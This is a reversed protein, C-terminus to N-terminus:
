VFLWRQHCKMVSQWILIEFPSIGVPVQITKPNAQFYIEFVAFAQSLALNRALRTSPIHHISEDLSPQLIAIPQNSAPLPFAPQNGRFKETAARL